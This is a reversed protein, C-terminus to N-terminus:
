TGPISNHLAKYDEPKPRSFIVIITNEKIQLCGIGIKQLWKEQLLKRGM